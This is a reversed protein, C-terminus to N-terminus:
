GDPIEGRRPDRLADFRTPYLSAREGFRLVQRAPTRLRRAMGTYGTQIGPNEADRRRNPNVLNPAVPPTGTALVRPNPARNRWMDRHPRITPQTSGFQVEAMFGAPAASTPSALVCSISLLHPVDISQHSQLIRLQQRPQRLQHLPAVRDCRFLQRVQGLDVIPHKMELEAKRREERIADFREPHTLCRGPTSNRRRPHASSERFGELPHGSTVQM